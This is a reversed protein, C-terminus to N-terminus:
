QLAKAAEILEGYRAPDIGSLKMSGFSQLLEKVQATLGAQSKEALVARVQEITFVLKSEESSEPSSDAAVAEEKKKTSSSSKSKSASQAKEPKPASAQAEEPKPSEAQAEEALDATPAIEKLISAIVTLSRSLEEILPALNQTSSITQM